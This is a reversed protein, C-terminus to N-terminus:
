LHRLLFAVQDSVAQEFPEGLYIDFHGVPYRKVEAQGGARRAADEAASVPAVSDKECIQILIPCTLEDARLGPRYLGVQLGVRACVRNDFDPPAVARYGPEADPSTMAALSGPPGVIPVLHPKRGTLVRLADRLGHWSLKLGAGVGAYRILNLLAARGDMMPCQAIVAALRGDQVAVEVVHGGSFSSGFVAMRCPDVGELERAFGLANRYDELQAPISLLQRPQGDSAGFFRYDFILAHLGARAFRQGYALLRAERTAGFGHAMVICPAGNDRRLADSAPPLHWARCTTGASEFEM